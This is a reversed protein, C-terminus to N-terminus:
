SEKKKKSWRGRTDKPYRRDMTISQHRAGNEEPKRPKVKTPLITPPMKEKNGVIKNLSM